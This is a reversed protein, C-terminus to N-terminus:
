QNYWSKGWMQMQNIESTQASIIAKAMDKIEQHKANQLAAQAMQVAGQHHMIMGSLFAQDFADGTKGELGEMMDDMAGGMGGGMDHNGMMMGGQMMHEGAEPVQNGRVLYGGGFGVILVLLGIIVLNTNKDM